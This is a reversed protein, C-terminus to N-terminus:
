TSRNIGVTNDPLDSGLEKILFEELAPAEFSNGTPVAVTVICHPKRSWGDPQRLKCTKSHSEYCFYSTFRSGFTNNMSVKGVYLLDLNADCVLYVGQRTAHPYSNPWHCGAELLKNENPYLLYQDSIDFKEMNPNRYGKSYKKVLNLAESLKPM